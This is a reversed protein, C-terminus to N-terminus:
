DFPDGDPTNGLGRTAQRIQGYFKNESTTIQRELKAIGKDLRGRAKDMSDVVRGAYTGYNTNATARQESNLSAVSKAVDGTTQGAVYATRTVKDQFQKRADKANSLTQRM